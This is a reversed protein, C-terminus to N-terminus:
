SERRVRELAHGLDAHLRDRAEGGLQDALSAQAALWMPRAARVAAKGADTIALASSRRDRGAGRVLFGARELPRLTRTLTTRDVDLRAALQSVSPRDLAWLMNLLSFQLIGLRSPALHGDYLRTARRTLMHLRYLTCPHTSGGDITAGPV